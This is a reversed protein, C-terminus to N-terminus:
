SPTSISISINPSVSIVSQQEPHLKCTRQQKNTSCITANSNSNTSLTEHYKTNINAYKNRYQLQCTM